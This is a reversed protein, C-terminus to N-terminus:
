ELVTNQHLKKTIIESMRKWVIKGIVISPQEVAKYIVFSLLLVIPYWIMCVSFKLMPHVFTDSFIQNLIKDTLLVIPQHFLYFSYSIIGLFNFHSWFTRLLRKEQIKSVSWKESLFRDIVIATLWAFSLFTFPATVKFFPSVFSLITVIDLRMAFLRSRKGKLFCECLYAGLSWSLWYAFPSASIFRPFPTDTIVGHIAVVIRIFVELCGVIIIGKKWGTRTTLLILLPYIIYLQIEVAISWFSPNIGFLTRYSLNHIALLHTGVQGVVRFWEKELIGFPWIFAFVLIALLYAPYIRFFRRIFFSLWGQQASRQYSLHICFGSVVFFAAVGTFGYTLPYLLLFSLLVDFDRFLGDWPLRDFGFSAGLSHFLFVAFIAIGRIVDLFPLHENARNM